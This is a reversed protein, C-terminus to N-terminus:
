STWVLPEGLTFVDKEFREDFHIKEIELAEFDEGRLRSARRLLVGREADM